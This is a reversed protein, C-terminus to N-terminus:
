SNNEITLAVKPFRLQTVIEGRITVLVEAYSSIKQM